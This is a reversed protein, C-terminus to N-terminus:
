RAGLASWVPCASGHLPCTPAIPLDNGEARTAPDPAPLSAINM